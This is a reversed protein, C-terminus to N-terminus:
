KKGKKQKSMKAVEEIYNRIAEDAIETMDDQVEIYYDITTEVDSHGMWKMLVPLAVGARVANTAFTRRLTHCSFDRILVDGDCADANADRTIRKIAKNVTGQQINGGFRTGFVFGSVGDVVASCPKGIKKQLEFLQLLDDGLPLDRFGNDTKPTSVCRLMEGRGQDKFYTLNRRIHLLGNEIDVDDWCLGAVEGIRLGTRLMVGFIPEWATGEVYELFRSQEALTLAAKKERPSERKLEALVGDCPNVRIVDDRVAMTFIQYLVNHIVELTRVTMVGNDRLRCYFGKIDTYKLKDINRMGIDDRVFHDYMYLYNNFTTPKLGRKQKKWIEFYYNLSKRGKSIAVGEANSRNVLKEKERLETLTSASISCQKGTVDIFKFEFGGRAREYEGTKLVHRGDSTKRTKKSM